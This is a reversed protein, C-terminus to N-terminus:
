AAKKLDTQHRPVIKKFLHHYEGIMEVIQGTAVQREKTHQQEQFALLRQFIDQQVASPNFVYSLTFPPQGNTTEIIIHGLNLLKFYFNPIQYTVNQVDALGIERQQKRKPRFPVGLLEILHTPTLLYVHRRWGDYRWFNWALSAVALLGLMAQTPGDALLWALQSAMLLYACTLLSFLPWFVASLLVAYHQRWLTMAGYETMVRSEKFQSRLYNLWKSWFRKRPSAISAITAVTSSPENKTSEKTLELRKVLSYRIQRADTANLRTASQEKAQEIISQWSEAEAINSLKITGAGATKIEMERCGLWNDLRHLSRITITQLRSLPVEQREEALFWLRQVYIVRKSTVIFNDKQWALYHYLMAIGGLLFLGGAVAGSLYTLSDNLFLRTLYFFLATALLLATPLIWRRLLALHYPKVMKIVVEDAQRSSFSLEAQKTYSQELKRLYPLAEPHRRTLWEWAERGFVAVHADAAVEVTAARPLNYLLARTGVIAGATHYNLLRPSPRTTDIAQLQGSLVVLFERRLSDQQLVVLGPEGFGFKALNVWETMEENSFQALGEHTRWLTILRQRLDQQTLEAM